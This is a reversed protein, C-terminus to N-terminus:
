LPAVRQAAGKGRLLQEQSHTPPEPVAARYRATRDSNARIIASFLISLIGTMGKYDRSKFLISRGSLNLGKVRGVTPTGVPRIFAEAHVPLPCSSTDDAPVVSPCHRGCARERDACKARKMEPRSRESEPVANSFSVTTRQFVPM